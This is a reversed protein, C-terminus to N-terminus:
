TVKEFPTAGNTKALHHLDKRFLIMCNWVTQVVQVVKEGFMERQQAEGGV